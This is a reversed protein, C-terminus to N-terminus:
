SRQVTAAPPPIRLRRGTRYLQVALGLAGPMAAAERRFAPLPVAVVQRAVAAIRGVLEAHTCTGDPTLLVGNASRLCHKLTALRLACIGSVFDRVGPVRLGPRLLWTASRRVLRRLPRDHDATEGVIVDAGSEFRKILEPVVIPSVVFDAPMTVACDRKPRDSRELAERLLAELTAAYGRGPVSPLLTMPLAGQYSELTEASGDASSADAALVHYERPFAGFVKRIKWLLLGVTSAHNQTAICVYIM